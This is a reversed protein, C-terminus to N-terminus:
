ATCRMSRPMRYASTNGASKAGARRLARWLLAASGILVALALGLIALVVVLEVLTFGAARQKGGCSHRM